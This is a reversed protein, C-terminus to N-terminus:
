AAVDEAELEAALAGLRDVLARLRRAEDALHDQAQEAYLRLAATDNHALSHALSLRVALITQLVEDRLENAIESIEGM